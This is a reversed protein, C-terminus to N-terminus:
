VRSEESLAKLKLFLHKTKRVELRLDGSIVSCPEILDTLDLLTTCNECEDGRASGYRCHPCTEVIYRDPLFREYELSYVLNIEREEIFGNKYLQQYFYQTLEHNCLSSNRGFYGFSLGLRIYIEAQIEHLKQSFTEGDLGAEEATIETPTIYKDLLM